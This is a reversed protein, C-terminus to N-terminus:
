FRQLPEDFLSAQQERLALLHQSWFAHGTFWPFASPFAPDSWRQSLWAAYRAIRLTRLVEISVLEESPFPRFVEYGEAITRIQAQQEDRQGSLLMWIDQIAPGQLCDDFDVFFLAQDRLLLNGSHLDGHLRLTNWPLQEPLQQALTQMTSQYADRYDEPMLGSALVQQAAQSLDAAPQITHRHQFPQRAGVQHIRALWRGILELDHERSLEPAHGGRRPFLAFHYGNANFLTDGQHQLPAVVPVDEEALQLLFAHEEAITARSWRNPRYFKAIVPQEDEIGVQYVRNEYSNLALIRADCQFGLSEVADMVSDPTLDSYPLEPTTM